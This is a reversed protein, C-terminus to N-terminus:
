APIKIQRAEAVRRRGAQLREELNRSSGESHSVRAFVSHFHELLFMLLHNDFKRV